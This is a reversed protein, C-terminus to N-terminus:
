SKYKIDNINKIIEGNFLQPDKLYLLRLEKLINSFTDKQEGIGVFNDKIM